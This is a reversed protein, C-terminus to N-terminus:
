STTSMSPDSTSQGPRPVTPAGDLSPSSSPASESRPVAGPASVATTAPPAGAGAPAAPATSPAQTTLPVETAPPAVSPATTAVPETVNTAGGTTNPSRDSVAIGIILLGCAIVAIAWPASRVGERGTSTPTVMTPPPATPPPASRGDLVDISPVREASMVHETWRRGDWYRSSHRGSPDSEWRGPREQSSPPTQTREREHNRQHLPDITPVTQASIVHDTWRQGDWYRGFHRGSPDRMWGPAPPRGSAQEAM